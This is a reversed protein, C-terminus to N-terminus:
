PLTVQIGSGVMVVEGAEPEQASIKKEAGPEAIEKGQKDVPMLQQDLLEALQAAKEWTLGVLSPVVRIESARSPTPVPVIKFTIKAAATSQFGYRNTLDANVPAAYLRAAPLQSHLLRSSKLASINLTDGKAKAATVAAAPPRPAPAQSRTDGSISLAVQIEGTTEPLAYFTPQYGIEQLLRLEADGGESYIALIRALSGQDLAEQAQAVGQGVAAIIEGIPAAMVDSVLNKITTM